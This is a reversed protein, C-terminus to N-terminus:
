ACAWFKDFRYIHRHKCCLLCVAEGKGETLNMEKEFTDFRQKVVALEEAEPTPELSQLFVSQLVCM